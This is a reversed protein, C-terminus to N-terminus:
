TSRFYKGIMVSPIILSCIALAPWPGSFQLAILADFFVISFIAQKIALQITQPNPTSISFFARRILPLAMVLFAIPYGLVASIRMPVESPAFSPVSALVVLGVASVIWGAAISISRNIEAERRGSWTFGAVYVGQGVAAVWAHPLMTWDALGLFCSASVGLLLSGARCLGMLVPGLLSMKLKSNYLRISVVLGLVVVIPGVTPGFRKVFSMSEAGTERAVQGFFNPALALLSVLLIAIGILLWSANRAATISIRRDALPRGRKQRQDQELDNMDNWIMGTWYIAIISVVLLSLVFWSRHISSTSLAGALAAGALVDAIATFVNPLRVLQAWDGLSPRHKKPSEL